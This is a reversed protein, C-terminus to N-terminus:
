LQSIEVLVVVILKLFFFLIAVMIFLTPCGGCHAGLVAGGRLQEGWYLLMQAEVKVPV